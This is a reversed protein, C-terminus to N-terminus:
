LLNGFELAIVFGIWLLAYWLPEWKKRSIAVAAYVIASLIFFGYLAFGHLVTDPWTLGWVYRLVIFYAVGVMSILIALGRMTDIVGTPVMFWVM